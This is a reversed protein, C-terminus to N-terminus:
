VSRPIARIKERINSKLESITRPKGAYVRDKLYGWLFFDLPSLYPSHLAWEFDTMFSSVSELTKRVGKKPYIPPTLAQEM